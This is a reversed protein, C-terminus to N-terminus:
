KPIPMVSQGVLAFESGNFQFDVNRQMEGKQGKQSDAAAGMLRLLPPRGEEYKLGIRLFEDGSKLARGEQDYSLPFNKGDRAVLAYFDKGGKVARAYIVVLSDFSGKQAVDLRAAYILEAGSGGVEGTLQRSAELDKPSLKPNRAVQSSVQGFGLVLVLLTAYLRYRRAMM